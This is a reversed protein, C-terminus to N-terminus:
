LHLSTSGVEKESKYVGFSCRIYWRNLSEKEREVFLYLNQNLLPITESGHTMVPFFVPVIITGAAAWGPKRLL